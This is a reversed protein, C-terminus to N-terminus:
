VRSEGGYKQGGVIGDKFCDASDSVCVVYLLWSALFALRRALKYHLCLIGDPESVRGITYDAKSKQTHHVLSHLYLLFKNESSM